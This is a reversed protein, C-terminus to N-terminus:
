HKNLEVHYGHSELIQKAFEIEKTDGQVIVMFKGDGLHKEYRAAGALDIGISTLIGALGGALLGAEFGTFIGFLAGAGFLFEMGPIAFIGVGTLVGLISGLAAGIGLEKVVISSVSKVRAEGDKLEGQGLISIQHVPYGGAKLQQIAGIAIEHTEYIGVITKM